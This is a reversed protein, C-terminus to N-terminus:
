LSELNFIETIKKFVNNIIIKTENNIYKKRFLFTTLFHFFFILM